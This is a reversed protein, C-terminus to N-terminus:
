IKVETIEDLDADFDIDNGEEIEEQFLKRAKEEAEEKNEAIVQYFWRVKLYVDFKTM